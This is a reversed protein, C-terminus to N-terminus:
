YKWRTSKTTMCLYIKYLYSQLFKPTGFVFCFLKESKLDLMVSAKKLFPSSM